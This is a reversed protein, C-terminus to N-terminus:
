RFDIAEGNADYAVGGPQPASPAAQSEDSGQVAQIYDALDTPDLQRDRRNQAAMQNRLSVIKAGLEEQALNLSDLRRKNTRIRVDMEDIEEQMRKSATRPTPEDRYRRIQANARTMLWGLVSSTLFFWALLLLVNTTTTM